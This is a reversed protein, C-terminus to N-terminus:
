EGAPDSFQPVSRGTEGTQKRYAAQTELTVMERWSELADGAKKAMTAFGERYYRPEHDHTSAAASGAYGVIFSLTGMLELIQSEKSHPRERVVKEADDRTM